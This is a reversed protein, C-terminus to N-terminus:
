NVLNVRSVAKGVAEQIKARPPPPKKYPKPAVISSDNGVETVGAQKYTSRLHAKSDYMQGDLMSQVPEMGDSIVRPAALEPNSMPPDNSRRLALEEKPVMRESMDDYVYVRRM